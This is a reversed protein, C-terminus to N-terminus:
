REIEGHQQAVGDRGSEEHEKEQFLREETGRVTTM